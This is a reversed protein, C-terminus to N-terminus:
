FEGHRGEGSAFRAAGDLAGAALSALGHRYEGALAEAETLGHQELASLRDRRLCEQPFGALELALERAAALTTGPPVLRNVM